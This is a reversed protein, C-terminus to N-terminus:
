FYFRYGLRIGYRRRFSEYNLAPSSQNTVGFQAWPEVYVSHHDGFSHLYKISGGLSLMGTPHYGNEASVTFNSTDVIISGTNRGYISIAGGLSFELVGRKSIPQSWGFQFPLTFIRYSNQGQMSITSTSDYSLTDIVYTTDMTFTDVSFSLTDMYTYTTTETSEFAHNEKSANYHIGTQLSIRDTFHYNLGIRLDYSLQNSVTNLLYSSFEPDTAKSPQNKFTSVGISGEVSISKWFPTTAPISDEEFHSAIPEKSETKFFQIPSTALSDLPHIEAFDNSKDAHQKGSNTDTNPDNSSKGDNLGDGNVTKANASNTTRSQGDEDFPINSNSDTGTTTTASNTNNNNNNNNSSNTQARQTFQDGQNSASSNGSSHSNITQDGSELGDKGDTKDGLNSQLDNDADIETKEAQNNKLTSKGETSKTTELTTKEEALQTKNSDGQTFYYVGVTLFALVVTGLFFWLLFRKKGGSQLMAAETSNWVSPPPAMEFGDLKERVLRDINNPEKSM